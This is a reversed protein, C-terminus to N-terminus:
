EEKPKGKTEEKPKPVAVPDFRGSLRDWGRNGGSYNSYIGLCNGIPRVANLLIDQKGMIFAGLVLCICITLPYFVVPTTGVYYIENWGLIILLLWVWKPVGGVIKGFEKKELAEKYALDANTEFKKKLQDIQDETILDEFSFDEFNPDYVTWNKLIKFQQFCYVFIMTRDKSANYLEEINEFTKWDRPVGKQDYKFWKTFKKTLYEDLGLAHKTVREKISDYCKERTDELFQNTDGEDFDLGKLIKRLYDELARMGEAQQANIDVWFNDDMADNLVMTVRHGIKRFDNNIKEDLLKLQNEKQKELCDKIELDLDNQVYTFDWESNGLIMNTATREFFSMIEMIYQNALMNFNETPTVKNIKDLFQVKFRQNCEKSLCKMQAKFIERLENVLAEHLDERIQQYVTQNYRQADKDYFDMAKAIQEECVESYNELLSKSANQRLESIEGNFFELAQVRLENCRLNAIMEKQSPLNLDKEGQIQDWVTNLYLPIGDVPVDENIGHLLYEPNSPDTLRTRLHDVDRAFQEPAFSRVGCTHFEFEFCDFVEFDRHSAPREIEKWVETM